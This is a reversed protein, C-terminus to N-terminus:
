PAPVDREEAELLVSPQFGRWQQSTRSRSVFYGLGPDWTHGVRGRRLVYGHGHTRYVSAGASSLAQLLSADVYRRTGRFGGVATFCDRSFLMTGGAVVPRFAETLNRRHVTVGLPEVYTFEPPTGTLDAGSYDRAMLLDTVFDPGYWDDDDMKLLLDGGAREAARNLLSGFAEDAPGSLCTVRVPTSESLDTVLREDADHGHTALVLELQVGRQRAVQRLAFALQEPRRTPLLVSVRPPTASVAGTLDAVTRRWAAASHHQYAARRARISHVERSMPDDLDPAEELVALLAPHLLARAWTPVPLCTLPVGTMALSAVLRCYEVPGHAGRWPLHVGLLGRLRPVDRDGLGTRTDVVVPGAATELRCVGPSPVVETLTSVPDTARRQFGRPNLVQADVGGLALGRQAALQRDSSEAGQRHYDAWSPPPSLRVGDSLPGLVHHDVGTRRPSTTATDTVVVDAPYDGAVDNIQHSSGIVSMPDGPTWLHPSAREFALVPWGPSMLHRPTARRALDAVFAGLDVAAALEVFLFSVPSADATVSAIAPWGPRGATMPPPGGDLLVCGLRTSSRVGHCAGVSRRLELRDRVVLLVGDAADGHHGDLDDVLARETMRPHAIIGEVDQTTVSPGRV